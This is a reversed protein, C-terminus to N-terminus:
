NKQLILTPIYSYRTIDDVEKKAIKGEESSMDAQDRYKLVKETFTKWDDDSPIFVKDKRKKDQEKVQRLLQQVGKLRNQCAKIEEDSIKGRLLFPIADPNLALIREAFKQDVAKMVIERKESVVKIQGDPRRKTEKTVKVPLHLFTGAKGNMIDQFTLMGFSLDNDIATVREILVEKERKDAITMMNNANRDTQGCIIDFLQLTTFQKMALPTVNVEKGKTNTRDSVDMYPEGEAKRMKVGKIKKGKVDLTVMQSEMIMDTIGLVEAMISTAENRVDLDSGKRVRAFGVGAINLTIKKEMERFFVLYNKKEEEKLDPYKEKLMKWRYEEGGSISNKIDIQTEWFERTKLATDLLSQLEKIRQEKEEDKMGSYLPNGVDKLGIMERTIGDIIEAVFGEASDANSMKEGVKFFSEGSKETIKFLSATGSREIEQPVEIQNTNLVIVRPQALVVAWTKQMDDATLNESNVRIYGLETRIRDGIQQVMRYRAEGEATKPSHTTLYDVCAEQLVFYANEVNAYATMGIGTKLLEDLNHLGKTVREMSKSNGRKWKAFVSRDYKQDNIRQELEEYSLKPTTTEKQAKLYNNIRDKEIQDIESLLEPSRYDVKNLELNQEETKFTETQKALLQDNLEKDSM